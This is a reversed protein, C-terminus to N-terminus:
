TIDEGSDVGVYKGHVVSCALTSRFGISSDVKDGSDSVKYKAEPKKVTKSILRSFGGHSASRLNSSTWAVLRHVVAQAIRRM